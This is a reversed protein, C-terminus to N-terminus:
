PAPSINLRKLAARAFKYEYYDQEGTDLSKQFAEKAGAKDGNLLRMAGIFYYAECKQGNVTEDGRTEAAKLLATEDMGGTIFQGLNKTWGEAWGAVLKAFLPPASGQQLQLLERYLRPYDADDPQIEAAKSYAELAGPFDLTNQYDQGLGIWADSDTDDIELARKFDAISAALDGKSEEAVARHHMPLFNKADLGIAQTDDAIAGDHDGKADKALGRAILAESNKPELALAHNSDGIAGDYDKTKIKYDASFSFLGATHVRVNDAVSWDWNQVPAGANSRYGPRVVGPYPPGPPPRPQLYAVHNKGDVVLDMRLLVYLGFSGAFNKFERVEEPGAQSVPVDSLTLNGVKITDAWGEETSTDGADPGYYPVNSLRVNPHADHWAQFQEPPLCVGFPSGTDVLITGVKDGGMPLDITLVGDDRVKVKLWHATEAPLKAVSAVTRQVSDFVLINDKVETWGVLGDPDWNTFFRIYWPMNIVSLPAVVKQTGLTLTVGEALGIPAKGKRDADEAPPPLVKVGLRAAGSKTLSTYSSGTDLEMHAVQGNVTASPYSIKTDRGGGDAGQAMVSAFFGAGWLGTVVLSFLKRSCRIKM